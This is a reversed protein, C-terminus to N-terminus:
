VILTPLRERQQRAEEEGRRLKEEAQKRETIDRVIGTFHHQVGVNVESVALEMPFETGDKRRGRVERGIGIIKKQGTALYHSVYEDHEDHYPAPMLQKVNEGIIEAASFGFITEAARNFTLVMANEDITIIGEVATDLVSQAHAEAARLQADM